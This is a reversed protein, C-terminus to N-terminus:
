YPKRIPTLFMTNGLLVATHALPYKKKEKKKKEKKKAHLYLEKYKIM